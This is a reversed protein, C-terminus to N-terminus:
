RSRHLVCLCGLTTYFVLSLLVDLTGGALAYCALVGAAAFAFPRLPDDKPMRRLTAVSAWLAIGILALFPLLAVLGSDMYVQVYDNHWSSVGKDALRDFAPFISRFTRPGFGTLPHEARMEWATSWLVARGSTVDGSTSREVTRSFVSPFVLWAAVLCGAAAGLVVPRRLTFVFLVGAALVWHLRNQTLVVGILLVAGAIWGIFPYRRLLNSPGTALLV